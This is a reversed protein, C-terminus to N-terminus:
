DWCIVTVPTAASFNPYFRKMKEYFDIRDSFGDEVLMGLPVMGVSRYKHVESVKRLLFQLEADANRIRLDDGPNFERMGERITIKKTNNAVAPFLDAAILLERM